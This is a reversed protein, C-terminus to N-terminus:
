VGRFIEAYGNQELQNRLADWGPFSTSPTITPESAVLVNRAADWTYTTDKYGSPCCMADTPTYNPVIVRIAPHADDPGSGRAVALLGGGRVPDVTLLVQGGRADSVWYQTSCNAGCLSLAQFRYGGEPNLSNRESYTCSIARACQAPPVPVSEGPGQPDGLQAAAAGASLAGVLLAAAAARRWTRPLLTPM